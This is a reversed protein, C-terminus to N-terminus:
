PHKCNEVALTFTLIEQATSEFTSRRSHITDTQCLSNEDDIVSLRIMVSSVYYLVTVLAYEDSTLGLQTMINDPTGRNM